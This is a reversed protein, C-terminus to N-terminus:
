KLSCFKRRTRSCSDTKGEMEREMEHVTIGILSVLFLVSLLFTFSGEVWRKTRRIRLPFSLCLRVSSLYFFSVLSCALYLEMAIHKGDM